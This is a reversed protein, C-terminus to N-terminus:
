PSPQSDAAISDARADRAAPSAFAIYDPEAPWPVHRGPVCQTSSSAGMRDRLRDIFRPAAHQHWDEAPQPALQTFATFRLCALTALEAVLWPHEPWCGPIQQTGLAGYTRNYWDAVADLWGWLQGRLEPPASAPDWPRPLNVALCGFADEAGADADVLQEPDGTAVQELLRLIYRVDKPPAPFPELIRTM